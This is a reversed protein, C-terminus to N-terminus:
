KDSDIQTRLKQNEAESKTLQSKLTKNNDDAKKKQNDKDLTLKHLHEQYMNERLVFSLEWWPFVKCYDTAACKFLWM